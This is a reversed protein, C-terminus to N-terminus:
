NLSQGSEWFGGPVPYLVLVLLLLAPLRRSPQVRDLSPIPATAPDHQVDIGLPLPVGILYAGPCGVLFGQPQVSPLGDAANICGCRTGVVCQSWRRESSGGQRTTSGTVLGAPELGDRWTLAVEHIRRYRERPNPELLFHLLFARSEPTGVRGGSGLTACGCESPTV